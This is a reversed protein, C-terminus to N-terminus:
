SASPSIFSVLPSSICLLYYALPFFLDKAKLTKVLFIVPDICSKILFLLFTNSQALENIDVNACNLITVVAHPTTFVLYSLTTLSSVLLVKRDLNIRAKRFDSNPNSMDVYVRNRRLARYILLYTSTVFCGTMIVFASAIIRPCYKHFDDQRFEDNVVFTVQLILSILWSCIFCRTVNKKTRWARFRFPFIVAVFRDWTLMATAIISDFMGITLIIKIGHNSLGTATVIGSVGTLADVVSLNMFFLNPHKFWTRKQWKKVLFGIEMMNLFLSMVSISMRAIDRMM